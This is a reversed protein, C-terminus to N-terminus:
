RWTAVKNNVDGIWRLCRGGSGINHMLDDYMQLNVDVEDNDNVATKEADYM